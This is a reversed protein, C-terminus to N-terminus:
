TPHVYSFYLIYHGGRISSRQLLGLIDQINLLPSIRIPQVYLVNFHLPRCLIGVLSLFTFYLPSRVMDELPLFLVFPVFPVFPVFSKTGNPPIFEASM